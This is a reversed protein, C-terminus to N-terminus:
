FPKIERRYGHRGRCCELPLPGSNYPTTRWSKINHTAEQNEDDLNQQKDWKLNKEMMDAWSSSSSESNYNLCLEHYKKCHDCKQLTRIQTINKKESDWTDEYTCLCYSHCEVQPETKVTETKNITEHPSKKPDPQIDLMKRKDINLHKPIAQLRKVM